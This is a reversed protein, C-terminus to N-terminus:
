FPKYHDNSQKHDENSSGAKGKGCVVKRLIIRREAVLTVYHVICKRGPLLANVLIYVTMFAVFEVWGIQIGEQDAGKYLTNIFHRHTVVPYKHWPLCAHPAVPLLVFFERVRYLDIVGPQVCLMIEYLFYLTGFTMAVIKMLKKRFLSETGTAMLPFVGM